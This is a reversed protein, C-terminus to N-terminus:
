IFECLRLLPIVHALLEERSWGKVTELTWANGVSFKGSRLRRLGYLHAGCGLATGIDACLTRVYTGKSCSVEFEVDPPSFAGLRFEQVVITRAVREVVQGKRALKYLPRGNVKVASVMPPTQQIDGTYLRCLQEIEAYTVGSADRTALVEGDRDQSSTEVGLRMTGAYSKDQGSLEESLRTARGLVIVLLGTAAPDLTGCHGVKRFAFRRRIFNVVDHSTWAAPKDILLVGSEALERPDIM